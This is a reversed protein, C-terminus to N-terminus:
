RKTRPASAMHRALVNVTQSNARHEARKEPTAGATGPKLATHLVEVTLLVKAQAWWWKSRTDVSAEHSVPTPSDVNAEHSFSTSRYPHAVGIPRSISIRLSTPPASIELGKSAEEAAEAAEASTAGALL